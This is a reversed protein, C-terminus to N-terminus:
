LLSAPMTHFEWQVWPVLKAIGPPRARFQHGVLDLPNPHPPVVVGLSNQKQETM